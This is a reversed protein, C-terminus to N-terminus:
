YQAIIEATLFSHDAGYLWKDDIQEPGIISNNIMNVALHDRLLVYDIRRSTPNAKEALVLTQCCTFDSGTAVPELWADLMGDESTLLVTNGGEPVSNLDGLLIQTKSEAGRAEELVELLEQAQNKPISGFNEVELHTNWIQFIHGDSKQLELKLVGRQSKFDKVIDNPLKFADKYEISAEAVKDWSSKYIFANGEVFRLRKKVDSGPSEGFELDLDNFRQVTSLYKEGGLSDILFILKELYDVTEGMKSHEMIMVEQLAVVDLDAEKIAKAMLLIRSLPKSAVFSSDVKALEKYLDASDAGLLKFALPTVEFGIAMNLNGVKITDKSLSLDETQTKPLVVIPQELETTCSQWCFASLAVGTMWISKKM